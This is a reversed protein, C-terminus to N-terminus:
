VGAWMRGPSLVGSPDFAQKLRQTLAALAAPAPEFVAVHNRASVSARMLTAHGGAAAARVVDPRPAEDPMEVWVAAGAQDMLIVADPLTTALSEMVLAGAMPAISVRWLARQPHDHFPKLDRIEQWFTRSTKEDLVVPAGFPAAIRELRARRDAISPSIGELRIATVAAGAALAAITTRAAAAPSLHVAGSVECPSGVARSLLHVAADPSCAPVLLTAVNEPAPLVKLTVATMVALTGWSGALGKMVDFGTVNKVVRGGAKFAEGRGSVAHVGLFHDRAAGVKFRRPGFSNAGLAGGLTGRGPPLGYLPGWDPPEFALVQRNASLVAEVEALPTGSKASLVLEASEYLTIGACASMDLVRDATMARGVGRRTGHGIVELTRANAIADCIADRVDAEDRPELVDAM